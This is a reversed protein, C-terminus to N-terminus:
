FIIKKKNKIKAKAKQSYREIYVKIYTIKPSFADFSRRKM